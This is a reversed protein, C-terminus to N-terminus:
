KFEDDSLVPTLVPTVEIGPNNMPLLPKNPSGFEM